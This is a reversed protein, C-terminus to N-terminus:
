SAQPAAPLTLTFASGRGPESAVILEAGMGRSLDRSIALGLGAGESVRTLDSRVQVFPEFISQLKEPPIGIGTDRVHVRVVEPPGGEAEAEVEVRGGVPTFKVANGLLNLLVQVLKERDAWAVLPREPLRVAYALARSRLQPEIMPELGRLAEDLRVPGLEYEVRGTEIRALNLVDNILGLLHRQNRAIRELAEGQAGTVPGHIGMELLEVHGAIANLPTRLEHSMVALFESKARSAAEAADRALEAERWAAEAEAAARRRERALALHAGVRAVLEQASFPKVLYDDAGRHAGEVRAEEGARASLLIVPLTGTAPDARLAALLAFGDLGPMMVDSLVLDPPCARAAALAAAGDAVAEVAWGEQRLLRSVYERVDANDDALLVRAGTEEEVCEAADRGADGPAADGSAFDVPTAEVPAGEGGGGPLWRAAELAYAAAGAAASGPARAAAEGAVHDAPLHGRGLPIRVTFTSGEGERSEVEVAGHHRRVLEQVLALGIGTGEHTRSRANAVRHFREFLRPLEDAAIGVGTDSVALLAWAGERRVRVAIGGEFTHKFANSVLNLVVKEWMDRDVYVPEGLPPADVELALGARECASRFTSALEATLASLDTPEFRADVRGAEIRSFDLLTNVLKLLRLANRHALELAEREGDGTAPTRLLEELPGLLLTLPTRFEHSVNSFFATKARDLEALAEARRREEEQARASALSAAIQGALLGVFGAYPADYLRYPNLGAVLFGAPREQGPRSVPVVAARRPPQAWEGPAVAGRLAAPVDAVVAAGAAADGLRWPDGAGGPRLEAPMRAGGGAVGTGCALRAQGSGADLLYALTFPLDLPNAGLAQEVAGLVEAESRTAALRAALERLTSLRRDGIVRETEESVVCLMGATQGSEDSLPSYSFTHYTEERYGSRELFLQLAEDWTATGTEMVTRIRPGIDDWIEAWVERAPRGLAWPHKVGLSMRAYADNYLFTLEPGWGMWMAFRSTLVIRVAMRLSHPWREAPGLPTAAWDHARVLADM